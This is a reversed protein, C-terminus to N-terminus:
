EIIVQHAFDRGDTITIRKFGLIKALDFFTFRDRAELEAFVPLTRTMASLEALVARARYLTDIPGDQLAVIILKEAENGKAFILYRPAYARQASKAAVGTVFGMRVPRGAGPITESRARYVERSGPAPYYYGVYRDESSEQSRAALPLVTLLGLLVLFRAKGPGDM